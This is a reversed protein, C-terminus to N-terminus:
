WNNKQNRVHSIQSKKRHKKGLIGPLYKEVGVEVKKNNEVNFRNFIFNRYVRLSISKQTINHLKSVYMWLIVRENGSVFDSM